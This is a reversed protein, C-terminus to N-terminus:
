QRPNADQPAAVGDRFIAPTPERLIQNNAGVRIRGTVGDLDLRFVPQERLLEVAIRFADIGLAYFRELNGHDAATARPFIMVAPHDPQLLWPMDVFRINNLDINDRPLTDPTDILSTAYVTLANSLYPRVLRAQNADAALFVCGSEFNALRERIQPFASEAPNFGFSQMVKGGLAEYADAFAQASRKALPTEAAAVFCFKQEDRWAQAAVQRAEAETSLGFWYFRRPLAPDGEPTNLALTPATIIGSAALASVASRTMPGVVVRAGKKLATAYVTLVHEPDADTPFATVQLKGEYVKQAARFGRQLAQAAPNFDASQLPLLLAVDPAPEPPTEPKADPAVIIDASDRPATAGSPNVPAAGLKGTSAPVQAAVCFPLALLVVLCNGRRVGPFCHRLSGFM